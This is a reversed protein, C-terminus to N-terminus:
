TERVKRQCPFPCETELKERIELTAKSGIFNGSEEWIQLMERLNGLNEKVPLLCMGNGAKGQNWLPKSGIFNESERSKLYKGSIGPSKKSLLCPYEIELKERIELIAKSGIFNGSEEWIQPMKILKTSKGKVPPFPCETEM